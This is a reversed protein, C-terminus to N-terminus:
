PITLEVANSASLRGADFTWAQFRVHSGAPADAPWPHVLELRGQADARALRLGGGLGSVDPVVLGGQFPQDLREFGWGVLVPAGPAAGSLAMTVPELECALGKGTLQPGSGTGATISRWLEQTVTITYQGISGYDTYRPLRETGDIRITYDGAPLHMSITADVQGALNDSAILLGAQDFLELLVDVNPGGFNPEAHISVIGGRAHLLFTDTDNRDDLLGTVQSTALDPCAFSFVDNTAPVAGSWDDTKFPTGNATKTIINVDNQTNTAGTYTGDSWQVLNKGFPAGMIPGWSTPGTGGAGPHYESGNLGDHSLGLTHGVEHSATMSGNNIGKNFAFCPNDISDDYSNLFAVGGIGDGFGSTAQTMVCRMGWNADGTGNKTLGGAPPEETTVDVEFPSFDEAVRNWHGYIADLENQDFANPNGNTDYAPFMINHNWSNSVSHHGDFDLYIVRPAGPLSHLQFTEEETLHKVLPVPELDPEAVPKATDVYLLRDGSVWLDNERALLARLQNPGLDNAGAVRALDGGLAQVADAGRVAEPYPLPLRPAQSSQAGAAAALGLLLGGVPLVLPTSPSPPVRM